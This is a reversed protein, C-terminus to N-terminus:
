REQREITGKPRFRVDPAHDIIDQDTLLWRGGILRGVGHREHLRAIHAHARARNVNWALAADTASRLSAWLDAQGRLYDSSHTM